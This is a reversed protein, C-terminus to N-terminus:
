HIQVVKMPFLYSMNMAQMRFQSAAQKIVSLTTIGMLQICAVPLLQFHYARQKQFRRHIALTTPLSKPLKLLRRKIATSTRLCSLNTLQQQSPWNTLPITYLRIKWEQRIPLAPSLVIPIRRSYLLSQLLARPIAYPRASSHSKTTKSPVFNQAAPPFEFTNHFPCQRLM